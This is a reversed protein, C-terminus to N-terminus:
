RCPELPAGFCEVELQLHAAHVVAAVYDRKRSRLESELRAMCRVLDPVSLASLEIAM